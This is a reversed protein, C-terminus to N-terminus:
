FVGGDIIPTPPYAGMSVKYGIIFPLGNIATQVSNGSFVKIWLSLPKHELAYDDIAPEQFLGIGITRWAGNLYAELSLTTANYRFGGEVVRANSGIQCNALLKDTVYNKGYGQRDTTAMEAGMDPTQLKLSSFSEVIYWNSGNARLLWDTDSAYKLLGDTPTSALINKLTDTSIPPSGGNGSGNNIIIAM